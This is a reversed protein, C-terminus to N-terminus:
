PVDEAKRVPGILALTQKRLKAVVHYKPDVVEAIEYEISTGLVEAVDNDDLQYRAKLWRALGTTARQFADNLSGGIGSVMVEDATESWPQDMAKGKVVEVSFEVAMSTELGQGTIEGDGQRAHADGMFLMGGPQYVPLYLTTGAGLEPFDLNGGWEGLDSNPVAAGAPPAVGVVGLMPRLPVKFAKLRDSPAEPRAFGEAPDLLWTDSRGPTSIQVYGPAVATSALTRAM